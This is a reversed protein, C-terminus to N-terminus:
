ENFLYNGKADVQYSIEKKDKQFQSYGTKLQEWFSIIETNQSYTKKYNAFTSEEMKFPFIYVPIKNQGNNKAFVAYVYIEEIKDNTMPLCGITVCEGHIFISGGPHKQDSKIKDSGNPYNIGLSLHYNSYPNFMNIHYFGEPIQLDGEKRKPGLVGSLRCIAYTEILQYSKDERKKVYLQLEKEAKYAILVLEFNSNKLGKEALKKDIIAQKNAIATKVKVIKRQQELFSGSNFSLLLFSSFLLGIIQKIKM